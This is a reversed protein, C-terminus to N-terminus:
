NDARRDLKRRMVIKCSIKYVINSKSTHPCIDKQVKIYKGMKNPSHFSIRIDNKNFRKFKETHFPIFPVTLWFASENICVNDVLDKLAIHKKKLLNKIRQNVTDFIFILPYDNDLLVNIIFTLNKTHFMFDSLLFARYVLSFITGKKQAISHNSHFHLFRGLFTLKRYWYFVFQNKSISITADLYDLKEGGIEVTFQLRPHFSNFRQLLINIKSPSVAICIDDV